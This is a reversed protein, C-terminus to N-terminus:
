SSSILLPGLLESVVGDLLLLGDLASFAPTFLGFYSALGLITLLSEGILVNKLLFM